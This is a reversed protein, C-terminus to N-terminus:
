TLKGIYVRGEKMSIVITEEKADGGVEDEAGPKVVVPVTGTSPVKKRVSVGETVDRIDELVPDAM